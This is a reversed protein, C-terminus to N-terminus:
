HPDHALHAPAEIGAEAGAAVGVSENGPDRLAECPAAVVEVLYKVLDGNQFPCAGPRAPRRGGRFKRSRQLAEPVLLVRLHQEAIRHLAAAEENEPAERVAGVGVQRKPRVLVPLRDSGFYANISPPSNCASVSALATSPSNRGPIDHEVCVADRYHAGDAIMTTVSGEVQGGLPGAEKAADNAREETLNHVASEGASAPTWASPSSAGNRVPAAM